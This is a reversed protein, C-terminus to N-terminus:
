AFSAYSTISANSAFSTLAELPMSVFSAFLTFAELSANSELTAFAANSRFHLHCMLSFHRLHCMQRFHLHCMLTLHGTEFSAISEFSANPSFPCNSSISIQRLCQINHSHRMEFMTHAVYLTAVHHSAM